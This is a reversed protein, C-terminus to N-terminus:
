ASTHTRYRELAHPIAQNYWAAADQRTDDAYLLVAVSSPQLAFLIRLEREGLRAPRLERFSPVSSSGATDVLGEGRGPSELWEEVEALTAEARAATYRAKINEKRVRFIDTDTQARLAFASLDNEQRALETCQERMQELHARQESAQARLQTARDQEGNGLAHDAQQDLYRSASEIEGLQLEARQRATAVDAVGRRIEQLRELHRQYWDDVAPGLDWVSELPVALPLGLAAGRETLARVAQDVFDAAVPDRARLDVLWARVESVSDVRCAM